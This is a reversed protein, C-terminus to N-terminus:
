RESYALRAEPTALFWCVGAVCALVPLGILPRGAEFATAYGLAGLLLQLVVVPGRAWGAVRWLGRAVVALAAAGVLVYVVEALARGVSDPTSTLTLWLLVAAVASAAAAEVGVLLAALRVSRPAATTPGAPRPASERAAGGLLRESWCRGDPEQSRAPM